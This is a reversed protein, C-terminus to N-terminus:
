KRLKKMKEELARKKAAFDADEKESKKPVPTKDVENFWEPLLETRTPKKPAPKKKNDKNSWEKKAKYENRALEMAEKVTKVKKRGWQSAIKETYAKPLKMDNTRMIFDILVNIVGAELKQDFMIGEILTLDAKSPEGGGLERLFERPSTTEFYTIQSDEKSAPENQQSRYGVSQVKDVLTPLGGQHLEYWNSASKRLLNLDTVDHDTADIVFNKMQIPDIGYLLALKSITDKVEDTLASKPVLNESLGALLLEFNFTSHNVEIGQNPRRGFYEKGKEVSLDTHYASPPVLEFVDEYAKSVNKFGKLESAPKNTFFRKLRAYQQEGIKRYLPINLLDTTFFQEPTLPPKLQYIIDREEEAERVLTTLLNIGELRLRADYIEKLNLDMLIMLRHHSSPESWLRNEELEAWLTMYLSLSTTGILPQYLFTLVKRDYEHLLGNSAVVYRDIPLLEQWHQVMFTLGKM